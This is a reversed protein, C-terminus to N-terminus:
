EASSQGRLGTTPPYDCINFNNCLQKRMENIERTQNEVIGECYHKLSDHKIDAKVRCDQSPSLARYHHSSFVELFTRNFQDGAPTQELLQIQQQGEPLLQPASDTGYWERLFRRATAIEERQMRNAARAMSKIEDSSAKAPTASTGPTPSTGEQPNDVAADRHEDTGAALETMRLASYHHNIIFSLYDKEFQATLGRGPSDAKVPLVLFTLVSLIAVTGPIRGRYKKTKSM